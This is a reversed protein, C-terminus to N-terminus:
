IGQGADSCVHIVRNVSVSQSRKFDLAPPQSLITSDFIDSDDKLPSEKDAQHDWTLSEEEEVSKSSVFSEESSSEGLSIDLLRRIELNLIESNDEVIQQLKFSEEKSATDLAGQNKKSKTFKVVLKRQRKELKRRELLGLSRERDKEQQNM